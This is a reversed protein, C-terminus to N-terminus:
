RGSGGFRESPAVFVGGILCASGNMCAGAM